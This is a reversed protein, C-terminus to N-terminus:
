QGDRLDTVDVIGATVLLQTAGQAQQWWRCFLRGHRRQQRGQLGHEHGGEAHCRIRLQASRRLHSVSLELFLFPELFFFEGLVAIIAVCSALLSHCSCYYWFFASSLLSWGNEMNLHDLFGAPSSSQRALNSSGVGAGAASATEMGSSVTRYLGSEVAAMQQQQQQSHFMMQQQQHHQHQSAMAATDPFHAAAPAHPAPAPPKDRIQHDALFRSFANDAGPEPSGARPGPQLFDECVEGLLTSPASRYRLLGSSTMPPQVPLNLDKSV